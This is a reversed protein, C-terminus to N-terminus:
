HYGSTNGCRRDVREQASLDLDRLDRGRIGKGQDQKELRTESRGHPTLRATGQCSMRSCRLTRSSLRPLTSSVEHSTGRQFVSYRASAKRGAEKMQIAQWRARFIPSQFPSIESM